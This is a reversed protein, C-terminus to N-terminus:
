SLGLGGVPTLIHRAGFGEILARGEAIAAQVAAIVYLKCGPMGQTGKLLIEILQARHGETAMLQGIIGYM